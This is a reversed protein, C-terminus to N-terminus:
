PRAELLALRVSGAGPAIEAGRDRIPSVVTTGTISEVWRGDPLTARTTLIWDGAMSFRFEPVSYRGNGEAEATGLVPVMGAHSMNGEVLIEAGDVPAGTSDSLTIILRAPGVAPPTPSIALDLVLGADGTDPAGRCGGVLFPAALFFVALRRLTAVSM